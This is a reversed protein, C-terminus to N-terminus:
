KCHLELQLRMKPNVRLRSTYLQVVYMCVFMSLPMSLDWTHYGQADPCVGYLCYWAAIVIPSRIPSRAKTLAARREAIADAIADACRAARGQRPRLAAAPRFPGKTVSSRRPHFLDGINRKKTSMARVASSTGKKATICWIEVVELEDLTTGIQCGKKQDKPLEKQDKPLVNGVTDPNNQSWWSIPHPSRLHLSTCKKCVIECGSNAGLNRVNQKAVAGGWIASFM